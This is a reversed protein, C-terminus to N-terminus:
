LPYEPMLAVAEEPTLMPKTGTIVEQKYVEAEYWVSAEWTAFTQALTQFGNTFGAYLMLANGSSFGTQVAKLDIDKQLAFKVEIFQDPLSLEVEEGSGWDLGDMVQKVGDIDTAIAIADTAQQAITRITSRKVAWARALPESAEVAQVVKWDTTELLTYATANVEDTAQKQVDALERPTGSFTKVAGELSEGTWYYKPDFPDNTTTVEVLGLDAKQQPTSKNLWNAPYTVGEIIFARGETIYQETKHRYFM